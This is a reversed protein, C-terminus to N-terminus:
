PALGAVLADFRGPTLRAFPRGDIMAAPGSACLGLCYVPALTLRRDATTEGMAVGLTEAVHAALVDGGRAQCAEARCLRVQHLGGPERRFDHYFTLVGHVEARSLNLAGAIIPVAADPVHGFAAQLAHLIPLLAGQLDARADVIEAAREPNWPEPAPSM